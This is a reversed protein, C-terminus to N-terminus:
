RGRTSRPHVGASACPSAWALRPRGLVAAPPAHQHHLVVDLDAPERRLEQLVEAVLGGPGRVGVLRELQKSSSAVRNSTTNESTTMGPM